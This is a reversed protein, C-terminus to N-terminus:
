KNLYYLITDTDYNLQKYLNFMSDKYVSKKLVEFYILLCACMCPNDRLTVFPFIEFDKSLNDFFLDFVDDVHNDFISNKSNNIKNLYITKLIYKFPQKKFNCDGSIITETFYKDSETSRKFCNRKHIFNYLYYNKHPLHKEYIKSSNVIYCFNEIFPNTTKDIKIITYVINIVKLLKEGYNNNLSIFHSLKLNRAHFYIKFKNINTIELLNVGQSKKGIWNSCIKISENKESEDFLHDLLPPGDNNLKRFQNYFFKFNNIVNPNNFHRKNDILYRIFFCIKDTYYKSEKVIFFLEKFANNM